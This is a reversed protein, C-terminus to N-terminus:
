GAESLSSQSLDHTVFRFSNRFSATAAAALLLTLSSCRRARNWRHRPAISSIAPAINRAEVSREGLDLLLELALHSDILLFVM